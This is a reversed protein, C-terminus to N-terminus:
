NSCLYPIYEVSSNVNLEGEQACLLSGKIVHTKRKDFM